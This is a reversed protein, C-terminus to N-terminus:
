RSLDTAPASRISHQRAAEPARAPLRGQAGPRSTVPNRQHPGYDASTHQSLDARIRL